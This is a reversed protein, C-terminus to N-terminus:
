VAGGEQRECEANRLFVPPARLPPSTHTRTILAFLVTLYAPSIEIRKCFFLSWFLFPCMM